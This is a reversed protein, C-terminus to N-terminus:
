KILDSWKNCNLKWACNARSKASFLDCRKTITLGNTKEGGGYPRRNGPVGPVSGPTRFSRV